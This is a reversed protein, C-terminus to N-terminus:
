LDSHWYVTLSANFVQLGALSQGSFKVTIFRPAPSTDSFRYLTEASVRFSGYSVTEHAGVSAFSEAGVNIDIGANDRVSASQGQLVAAAVVRYHGNRRPVIALFIEDPSLSDTTAQTMNDTDFQVSDFLINEGAFFIEQPTTRLIRAMPIATATRGIILDNEDLQAEVLAAFDCWVSELNDCGTGPGFCPPDSGEQYPLEYIPTFAVM